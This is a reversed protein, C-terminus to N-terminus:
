GYLVEINKLISKVLHFLRIAFNPSFIERSREDGTFKWHWPEYGIGQWNDKPFSISFGFRHANQVLWQFAETEEFSSEDDTEPCDADALDFAYGTHHESYGAPALWLIGKGKGHRVEAEKFLRDQFEANRHSSIVVIRVQDAEAEACMEKLSQVALPQGKFVKGDRCIEPPIRMLEEEKAVPYPKHFVFKM